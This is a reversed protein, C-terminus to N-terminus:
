FSDMKRYKNNFFLIGTVNVTGTCAAALETLMTRATNLTSQRLVFPLTTTFRGNYYVTLTYNFANFQTPKQRPLGCVFWLLRPTYISTVNRNRLPFNNATRTPDKTAFTENMYEQDEFTDKETQLTPRHGKCLLICM